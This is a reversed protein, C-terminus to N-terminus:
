IKELHAIVHPTDDIHKTTLKCIRFLRKNNIQRAYKEQTWYKFSLENWFSKALPNAFAGPGDTSPTESILMGGPALVRHIETMLAKQDEIM